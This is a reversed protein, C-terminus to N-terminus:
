TSIEDAPRAPEISDDLASPSKSFVVIRAAIATLTIRIVAEGVGAHPRPIEETRIKELGPFGHGENKTNV